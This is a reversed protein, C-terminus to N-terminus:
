RTHDPDPAAASSRRTDVLSAWSTSARPLTPDDYTVLALDAASLPVRVAEVALEARAVAELAAVRDPAADTVDGVVMYVDPDRGYRHTVGLAACGDRVDAVAACPVGDVVPWGMLVVRGAGAGFAREHLSSGRSLMRLDDPPFGGFQVTLPRALVARLHAALPAPDFPAGCRELGVLTAHVQGPDRPAFGAGLHAATLDQLRAVLRDLAAPLTEYWAVVTRRAPDIM